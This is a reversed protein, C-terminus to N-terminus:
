CTVSIHYTRLVETSHIFLRQCEKVVNAFISLWPHNSPFKVDNAYGYLIPYIKM